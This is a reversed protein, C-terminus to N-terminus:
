STQSKLIYMLHLSFSYMYIYAIKIFVIANILHYKLLLSTKMVCLINYVYALM